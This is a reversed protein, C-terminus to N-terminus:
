QLKCPFSQRDLVPSLFNNWDLFYEWHDLELAIGASAFLEIESPLNYVQNWGNRSSAIYTNYKENWGKQLGINKLSKELQSSMRYDDDKCESKLILYNPGIRCKKNAINYYLSSVNTITNKDGQRQQKGASGALESPVYANEYLLMAQYMSHDINAIERYQQTNFVCVYFNFVNLEFDVVFISRNVRTCM